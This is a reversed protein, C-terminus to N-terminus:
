KTSSNFFLSMRLLFYTKHIQFSTTNIQSVTWERISVNIIHIYKKIKQDNYNDALKFLPYHQLLDDNRM